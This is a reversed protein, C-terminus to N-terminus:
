RMKMILRAKLFELILLGEIEEFWLFYNLVATVEGIQSDPM